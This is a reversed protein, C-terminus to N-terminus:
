REIFISGTTLKYLTTHGVFIDFKISAPCATAFFRANACCIPLSLKKNVDILAGGINAFWFQSFYYFKKWSYHFSKYQQLSLLRWCRM